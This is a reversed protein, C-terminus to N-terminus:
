VGVIETGRRGKLKLPLVLPLITYPILDRFRPKDSCLFNLLPGLCALDNSTNTTATSVIKNKGYLKVFRSIPIVLSTNSARGRM